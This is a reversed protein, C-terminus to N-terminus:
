TPRIDQPPHRRRWLLWGLYAVVAVNFSLILASAWNQKLLLHRVELPVYMAGSLAGLWEGWPRQFWLGWAESLRVAVYAAVILLLPVKNADTFIDVYHLLMAPYHAEPDMGITGFLNVVVYRLDSHVLTLLGLSVALAGLGKAAEFLAIARLAKREAVPHTTVAAAAADAVEAAESQRETPPTM